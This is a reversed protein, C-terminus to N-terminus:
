GTGPETRRRFPRVDYGENLYEEKDLWEPLYVKTFIDMLTSLLTTGGDM